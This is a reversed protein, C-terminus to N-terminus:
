AKRLTDRIERLLTVEEPPAPPAAPQERKMRNIMRIALFIVWAVILFDVLTQVFVGYRLVAAGAKEAEALTVYSESSLTIFLHRFDVGGMILGVLPMIIDKVLSEIIRGFAAGIIVAVALDVMNGKVAFEKFEQIM